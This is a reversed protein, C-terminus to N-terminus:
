RPLSFSGADMSDNLLNDDHPDCEDVRFTVEGNEIDIVTVTTNGLHLIDGVNLDFEHIQVM